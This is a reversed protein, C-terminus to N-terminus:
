DHNGCYKEPLYIASKEFSHIMKMVTNMETCM